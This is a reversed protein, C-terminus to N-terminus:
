KPKQVGLKRMRSVLTQPNIDLIKAAGKEGSVKWQTIELVEVIHQREMEELSLIESRNLSVDAKSLWDGLILKNSKSTIVAREIINELERVNGPWSYNHLKTVVDQTVIEINKGTKANYKKLFHKMLLPIDERRERLSPIEIPFVNLRYFLDERFSGEAIEKELNRNTAAIVRVDVKVTKPDGLLEFEGEQLVRLLKTQLGIPLEGIEDLFITGSNALEFRGIKRSTAGTFAGKEHGFLESEILNEPLTACNVKVLPRDSRKSISHVARALLEKGTGTEGLILVTSDTSAVQEVSRLVKNFEDSTSIINEFNHEVKLESQLYINEEQLRNKLIEVEDLAVKLKQAAETREAVRDELLKRKKELHNIRIKYVTFMLSFIFLIMIIKFWVTQWFPPVIIIKLSAPRENWIGDSSAAKVLFTYEGPELNTYTAFRHTGSKRWNNDYNELKHEYNNEEPESYHLAVYELTIDNQDYALEIEKALNIHTKLPSDGGVPLSNDFLKINSIVVQPPYPNDILKNPNFENFGNDGGFYMAGDNGKSTARFHFLNSQIGESVDYNRFTKNEYNFRSLGRETGLWLNGMDDELIGKISNHALGDKENFIERDGTKRDFLHIGGRYTGIWLRGTRDEYINLIVSLGSNNDYYNEFTETARNFKDLGRRDTGFWLTGFSDEFIVNVINFSLSNPNEPDNLYHTFTPSNENYENLDLKNLGGGYTGVWLAGFSDIYISQIDNNNLSATNGEDNYYRRFTENKRDFRNLGDNTGIWLYGQPDEIITEVNNNSLSYRNGQEFTYNNFIRTKPDFRNLGGGRTGIWVIGDSDTYLCWVWNNNLSNQKGAVHRFHRFKNKYLDVKNLGTLWCGFWLVGTRDENIAWVWDGNISYPNNADSQYRIFGDINPDFLNLGQTDTGVWIKGNNDEYIVVVFNESLSNPNDPENVYHKWLDEKYNYKSLGGATAIWINESNDEIIDYIQNNILSNSNASEHFYRVSKGTERNFKNLGNMTGIWFNGESDETIVNVTNSSLSNMNDPENRYNKFTETEQYFRELGTNYMGIWLNGSNDEYLVHVDNASISKPNDDDHVYNKFTETERDFKILGDEHSSIWLDGLHDEIVQIPNRTNISNTDSPEPLYTKFNYGDYKVLGNQTTFWLFGLHDQIICKIHNHPLGDSVTLHEFHIDKSQPFANAQLLLFFIVLILRSRKFLFSM